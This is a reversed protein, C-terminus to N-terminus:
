IMNDTLQSRYDFLHFTFVYAAIFFEKNYKELFKDGFHITCLNIKNLYTLGKQIRKKEVHVNLSSNMTTVHMSLRGISRRETQTSASNLTM